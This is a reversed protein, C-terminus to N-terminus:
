DLARRHIELVDRLMKHADRTLCFELEASCVDVREDCAEALDPGYPACVRDARLDVSERVTDSNGCEVPEATRFSRPVLQRPVPKLDERQAMLQADQAAPRATQAALRQQAPMAAHDLAAPGVVAAAGSSRREVGADLDAKRRRRGVTKLSRAIARAVSCSWCSSSSRSRTRPATEPAEARGSTPTRPSAAIRRLALYLFSPM